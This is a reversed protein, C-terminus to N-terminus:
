GEVGGGEGSVTGAPEAYLLAIEEQYKEKLVRRKLKMTPTLEGGEISFPMALLHFKKVREWAPLDRNVADVEKRLLAYVEPHDVWGEAPLAVGHAELEARVAEENPVLLAACFKRDSGVLAAQEIFRSTSLSIEIPQPAVYKGTTLKMLEKKRDTIFLFGDDDFHGIDGTRFWGDETFVKSTEEPQNYYGQMVNPGKVLIEGDDAIKVEVSALPTGISGARLRDREFVSVVPSTETLGYGQGCFIGIANIFNMVQASLAGGGSTIGKLNRGFLERLKRYVLLDAVLHQLRSFPTWEQEVDYRKALDVAWTAILKQVGTMGAVKNQIGLYIKELLRPVTAFHVPEVEQLDRAIQQYDEVFYISMGTYLYLYLLMREFVHSLPLYSLIKMGRVAEADYPIREISDLVNSVLNAHSLMVGKPKGTTGSTYVLSALDGPLVAARAEEFLDPTKGAQVRGKALVAEFTLMGERYTGFLGVTAKLSAVDDVYPRFGEFLAETSVVYVVAGADDLIYQIQPGPQTAYIPVNVAGLSQIAQDVVVWETSSEAHLAVRDGRRVGLAYLGLAFHEVQRAFAYPSTEIWRGGRKTALCVPSPNKRLGEEVLAILTRANDNM